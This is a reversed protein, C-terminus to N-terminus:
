VKSPITAVERQLLSTAVFITALVNKLGIKITKTRLKSLGKRFSTEKVQM